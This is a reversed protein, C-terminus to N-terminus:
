RDPGLRPPALNGTDVRSRAARTRTTSTLGSWERLPISSSSTSSDFVKCHRVLHIQEGEHRDVAWIRARRGSNARRRWSSRSLLQRPSSTTSFHGLASGWPVTPSIKLLGAQQPSATAGPRIPGGAAFRMDGWHKFSRTLADFSVEDADAFHDLTEDSFVVGFGYADGPANREFVSVEISPDAKRLLIALYLGAPGGGVCVVRM